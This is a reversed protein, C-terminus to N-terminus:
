KQNTLFPALVTVLSNWGDLDIDKNLFIDRKWGMSFYPFTVNKSYDDDRM